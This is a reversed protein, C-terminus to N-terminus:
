RARPKLSPKIKAAPRGELSVSGSWPVHGPCHIRVAHRAHRDLELVRVVGRGREVGNVTVSADAPAEVVLVGDAPEDLTRAARARPEDPMARAAPASALPPEASESHEDPAQTEDDVVDVMTAPRPPRTPPTQAVPVVPAIPKMAPRLVQLRDPPLTRESDDDVDVIAAHPGHEGTSSEDDDVRLRLVQPVPATTSHGNTAEIPRHPLPRPAPAGGRSISSPIDDEDLPV